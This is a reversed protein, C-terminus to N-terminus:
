TFASKLRPENTQRATATGAKGDRSLTQSHAFASNAAAGVIMATDEDISAVAEALDDYDRIVPRRIRERASWWDAVLVEIDARELLDLKGLSLAHGVRGTEQLEKRQNEFGLEIEALKFPYRKIATRKDSTELSLRIQGRAEVHELDKPRRKRVYWVGDRLYLGPYKALQEDDM